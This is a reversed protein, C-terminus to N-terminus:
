WAMWSMNNIKCELNTAPVNKEQTVSTFLLRIDWYSRHFFTFCTAQLIQLVRNHLVNNTGTTSLSLTIIANIGANNPNTQNRKKIAYWGKHSM